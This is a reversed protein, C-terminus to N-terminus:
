WEDAAGTYRAVPLVSGNSEAHLVVLWAHRALMMAWPKSRM